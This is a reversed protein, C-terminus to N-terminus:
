GWRLGDTGALHLANLALGLHSYAQPHNGLGEGTRPDIEEPLCGTPGCARRLGEFLAEAEDRRDVLLLADILWSTCLHFGGEEGPLGDDLRYRYVTGNELLERQVAEVTSVFRPHRAPVLGALGIWLSAADLDESGFATTYAGTEPNWGSELTTTAIEDRLASWDERRHGLFRESMRCARDVTWWCMVKSHLHHRAPGRIEWIGQDPQRWRQRVGEVLNEALRWHEASLPAGARALVWLLQAIPGFVDLQVQQSAANGVRVPRSGAYGSLEAIEAEPGLDQGTVTYLPRLYEPGPLGELVDLVWDLLRMGEDLSGLHALAEASMSADRIWTYRYDWNRVGGKSEPLSTTAAAAIAGTPGHVLGRLLLASTRVEDRAVDPLTLTEVWDAWYRTTEERRHSEDRTAELHNAAGYRLELVLPREAPRVRARATEHEGEREISWAVGESRLVVPDFGGQVALGGDVPVLRTAIRGFDLRPAFTIEVEADGSIVRVLDSRGARQVARGGSVDLYDVVQCDAWRTRLVLADDVYEQEIPPAGNAAVVDFYGATPGGVLEAFLAPSDIRPACMWALRASPGVLAVTRLDSLMSHAEIPTAEGGELWAQREECLLALLRAVELPDEARYAARSEGPGVKVGVDPGGLTAFADEDTVDDGFFVAAMAGSRHRLTELAHGKDTHVVSLEVVKKGTRMQVGGRAAPGALVREVAPEAVAPEANRYHFAVGAPKRELHFGPDDAAIDELEGALEDLLARQEGTLASAFDPEFESGHSGVLHVNDPEGFLRSLEALARGSIVSVHTGALGALNRLAIVSERCPLADAPNSVIPALTGDYDCAVLLVPTRALREIAEHLETM